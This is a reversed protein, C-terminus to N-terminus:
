VATCTARRPARLAYVTNRWACAAARWYRVGLRMTAISPRFKGRRPLRELSSGESACSRPLLQVAPSGGGRM